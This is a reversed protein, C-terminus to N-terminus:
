YDHTSSSGGFGIRWAKQKVSSPSRELNINHENKKFVKKLTKYQTKHTYLFPCM